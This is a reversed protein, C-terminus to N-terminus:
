RAWKHIPTLAFLARQTLMEHRMDNVTCHSKWKANAFQCGVQFGKNRHAVHKYYHSECSRGNYLIIPRDKISSYYGLPPILLTSGITANQLQCGVQLVRYWVKWM